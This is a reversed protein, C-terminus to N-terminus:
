KDIPFTLNTNSEVRFFKKRYITIGIFKTEVIKIPNNTDDFSSSELITTNILTRM